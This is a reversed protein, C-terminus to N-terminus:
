KEDIANSVEQVIFKPRDKVELYIKGVYEGIVGLAFIQVGGLLLSPLLISAWGPASTEPSLIRELFVWCIGLFSLCAVVVGLVTIMRLPRISLSTVGDLALKIMKSPSYKTVGRERALRKYPVIGVPYGLLPILGRLFLNVERHSLLTTISRRSMLRFDAHNPVITAGLKKLISYYGNAFLRKFFSDTSRDSRVGLVMDFGAEYLRLMEDVVSIDDQLDADLSIAVDAEVANLGALLAAQHGFNRSLKIGIIRNDQESSQKLIRWTADGSGDDIFVIRYSTASNDARILREGLATLESITTPLAEEENYCPVVFDIRYSKAM